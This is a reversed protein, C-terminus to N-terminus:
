MSPGVTLKYKFSLMYIALLAPALSEEKDENYKKLDKPEFDIALEIYMSLLSWHLSYIGKQYHIEKQTYRALTDGKM